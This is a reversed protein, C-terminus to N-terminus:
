QCCSGLQLRETQRVKNEKPVRQKLQLNAVVVKHDSGIQVFSNYAQCNTASKVWKKNILIYDIQARSRNPYTFTWLKSNKKLFHSNLPIQENEIVLDLLLNGNRNTEKNYSRKFVSEEKVQANFDGCTLLMNHKPAAKQVDALTEYFDEATKPDSCNTPSYCCVVSLAPNGHFTATIIRPTIKEINKLSKNARPSLLLGVGGNSANVSNKWASSTVLVWGKGVNHYKFDTDEHLIRHEQICLIDIESLEAEAALEGLKFNQNIDELETNKVELTRVNLTAVKLNKKCKLLNRDKKFEERKKQEKQDELIKKRGRTVISYGTASKANGVAQNQVASRPGKEVARRGICYTSNTTSSKM